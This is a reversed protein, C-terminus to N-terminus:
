RVVSVPASVLRGIGFFAGPNHQVFAWLQGQIQKSLDFHGNDGPFRHTQATVRAPYCCLTLLGDIGKVCEARTHLFAYGMAGPTEKAPKRILKWLWRPRRPTCHVVELPMRLGILFGSRDDLPEAGIVAILDLRLSAKEWVGEPLTFM